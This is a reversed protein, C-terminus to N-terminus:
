CVGAPRAACHDAVCRATIATVPRAAADGAAGRSRRPSRRGPAPHTHWLPDPQRATAPPVGRPRCSAPRPAPVSRRVLPGPQRPYRRRSSPPRAIALPSTSTRRSTMMLPIVAKTNPRTIATTRPRRRLPPRRQPAGSCMGGARDQGDVPVPCVPRTVSSPRLLPSPMVRAKGANEAITRHPAERPNFGYGGTGCVPARVLQALPVM